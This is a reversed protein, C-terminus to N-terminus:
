ARDEALRFAFAVFDGHHSLSLVGPLPAGRWALRPVRGVRAIELESAGLGLADAIRVRALARAAESLTSGAAIDDVHAAARLTSAALDPNSWAVAHLFRDCREVCVRVHRGAHAVHMWVPESPGTAPTVAFRRPVFTMRRSRSLAKFASEKAAWFTWRMRESDASAAIADREAACFARADFREHRPPAAAAALDVVDNGLM